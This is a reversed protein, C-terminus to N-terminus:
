KILDVQDVMEMVFRALHDEPLYDQISPPLLYPTDRDVPVFQVAM